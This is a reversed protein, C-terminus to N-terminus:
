QDIDTMQMLDNIFYTAQIFLENRMKTYMPCRIITHVENEVCFNCSNHCEPRCLINCRCRIVSHVDDGSIWHKDVDDALLDALNVRTRSPHYISVILDKILTPTDDHNASYVNHACFEIARMRLMTLTGQM